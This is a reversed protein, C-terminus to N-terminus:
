KILHFPLLIGTQAGVMVGEGRFLLGIKAPRRLLERAGSVKLTGPETLM